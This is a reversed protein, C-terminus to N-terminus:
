RENIKTDPYAGILGEEASAFVKQAATRSVMLRARAFPCQM